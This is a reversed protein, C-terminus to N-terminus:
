RSEIDPTDSFESVCVKILKEISDIFSEPKHTGLM